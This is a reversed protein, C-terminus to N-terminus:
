ISFDMSTDHAGNEQAMCKAPKEMQDVWVDEPKKSKNRVM